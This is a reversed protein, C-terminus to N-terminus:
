ANYLLVSRHLRHADPALRQQLEDFGSLCLQLTEEARGQRHRVYALGNRMFVTLFYRREDSVALEPILALARDLHETARELDRRPLFRAHLMALFYHIEVLAAKDEVKQLGDTRLVHLARE